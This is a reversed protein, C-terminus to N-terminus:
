FSLALTVSSAAPVSAPADNQTTFSWVPSWSSTGSENTASIRWYYSTMPTLYDFQYITDTIGSTDIILHSFDISDSLQLAYSSANVTPLWRFLVNPSQNCSNNVPEIKIPWYPSPSYDWDYLSYQGFDEWWSCYDITRLTGDAKLGVLNKSIQIIGDWNEIEASDGTTVITGDSKIGHTRYSDAVIYVIDTWTSVDCQGQLNYGVAVVTGDDKLGVSHAYGASISIINNWSSVNCRGDYYNYGVALVTGDSKLGLTHSGGASVQVIEQWSAVNCRNDYHYGTALVSGDNKLGITHYTGASISSIDTWTAVDCQGFNNSGVAIVTGNLKLGVTHYEGASIEGIEEWSGVDCQGYSNEGQALVSGDSKLAVTFRLNASAVQIIDRWSNFSCQYNDNNGTGILSGDSTMGVTHYDGAALEIIDSWSNVDCQGESNDGAAMVTGDSKLGLTHRNGAAIQIIDFFMETDCQGFENPGAAIVTGDDKLGVVHGDSGAAIQVINTWSSIEQATAPWIKTLYSNGTAIVTGDYKLGVILYGAADIQTIGWWSSVDYRTSVVMGDSKLGASMDNGAAIRIINTWSDVNCQSLSNDGVAVVTGDSKLGVTHKQGAAVHTIDQWMTVNCQCEDNKGIAITSGDEKALVTHYPGAALIPKFSPVSHPDLPDSREWIEIGDPHGDDDTDADCPDTEGEDVVGNKNSDETGDYLGDSDSDPNTIETCYEAEIVDSLGDNDSDVIPIIDILCPIEIPNNEHLDNHYVSITKSYQGLEIDGSDFCANVITNTLPPVTGSTPSVTLFSYPYNIQICLNDFISRDYYDIELGDTGLSNEIGVVTAIAEDITYYNFIIKGNSFLIVQFTFDSFLNPVNSFQIIIKSGDDYYCVSGGDSPNFWNDCIASIYNNPSAWHPIPNQYFYGDIGGDFSIIGNSNLFISSFSNQYFPFDFSLAIEEFEYKSLSLFTGIARIDNWVFEPGGEQDSRIWTYGFNDSTNISNSQSITNSDGTTINFTLDVDGDNQILIDRCIYNDAEITETIQIPTINIEPPRKLEFILQLVEPPVTVTESDSSNFGEAAASIQYTGRVVNIGYFGNSDTQVIGSMPGSFKVAAGEIPNLGNFTKVYGSIQHTSDVIAAFSQHWTNDSDDTIDLEFNITTPVPCDPSIYIQFGESGQSSDGCCQIIGYSSSNSIISVNPNSSSLVAMVAFADETGINALVCKLEISEDPNILGDGNGTENDLVIFSSYSVEPGIIQGRLVTHPDGFLNSEYYCWRICDDNICWLNDEHSDTNIAGINFIQEGFFADWFQRNFRQSPGDTSDWQGWGYRSNFVVAFMGSRTSTTLHEAMCDLEFNGPLCGQSYAFIPNSNCLMDADLNFFKLVYDTNAHGLHNIIGINGDNIASIVSSQPWKNDQDYLTDVLFDQSYSFGETSYGHSDSGLRIEEMSSKAYESVGGFGLHEGVMLANRLFPSSSPANEYALTKYIFNSMEKENEASARGVYVEALLDIDTGEPGDNVEGWKDDGDSNFNGDLCQYYLDSPINDSPGLFCSDSWLKRMPIINTDGGLLVYQTGWNSYADIIFNRVKEADDIGSYNATIDEITVITASLGKSIKQSILDHVTLDTTADRIAQNTILIYEFNDNPNCIGLPVTEGDLKFSSIDKNITTSETDLLNINEIQMNQLFNLSYTKPERSGNQNLIPTTPINITMNKYYSVIGPKPKYFVPYLNIYIILIGRKYQKGVIEFSNIPYRTSKGYISEKPYAKRSRTNKALPFCAESFGIFHYGHMSLENSAYVRIENIDVTRGFPIAVKVPIVPMIPEGERVTKPASSFDLKSIINSEWRKSMPTVRPCPMSYTMIFEHKNTWNSRVLVPDDGKELTFSNTNRWTPQKRQAFSTSVICNLAFVGFIYSLIITKIKKRLFSIRKNKYTTKM